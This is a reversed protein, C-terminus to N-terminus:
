RRKKTIASFASLDILTPDCVDGTGDGDIDEQAKSCFGGAGCQGNYSCQIGTNTGATCTGKRPGNLIDPCNDNENLIGDVDGDNEAIFACCYQCSTICGAYGGPGAGSCFQYCGIACAGTPFTECSGYQAYVDGCNNNFFATGILFATVIFINCKKYM